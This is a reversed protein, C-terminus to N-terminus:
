ASNPSSAVRLAGRGARRRDLHELVEAYGRYPGLGREVLIDELPRGRHRDIAHRIAERAPRPVPGSTPWPASEPIGLDAM